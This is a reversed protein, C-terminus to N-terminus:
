TWEQQYRNVPALSADVQLEWLRHNTETKLQSSCEASTQWLNIIWIRCGVELLAKAERNSLRNFLNPRTIKVKIRTKFSSWLIIAERNSKMEQICTPLSMRCMITIILTKSCRSLSNWNWNTQHTKTQTCLTTKCHVEIVLHLRYVQNRRWPLPRRISNWAMFKKKLKNLLQIARKNYIWPLPKVIM